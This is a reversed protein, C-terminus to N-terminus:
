GFPRAVTDFALSVTTVTLPALPSIAGGNPAEDAVRLERWWIAQTITAPVGNAYTLTVEGFQNRGVISAGAIRAKRAAIEADLAAIKQATAADDGQMQLDVDLKELDKVPTEGPKDLTFFRPDFVWEARFAFDTPKTLERIQTGSDPSSFRVQNTGAIRLAVDPGIQQARTGVQVDAGGDNIWGAGESIYAQGLSWRDASPGEFANMGDRHWADTQPRENKFASAVLQALVMDVPSQTTHGYPREAWYQLRATYGFHVDGSLVVVRSQRGPMGKVTTGRRGLHALAALLTQQAPINYVWEEANGITPGLTRATAEQGAELVGYGLVPAGTIVFTIPPAADDVPLQDGILGPAILGNFGEGTDPYGCHTRCDTAIIRHTPYTVSYDWRLVSAPVAPM